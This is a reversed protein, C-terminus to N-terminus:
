WWSSGYGYGIGPWYQYGFPGHYGFVYDRRVPRQVNFYRHVNFYRNVVHHRVYALPRVDAPDVVTSCNIGVAKPPLALPAAAAEVAPIFAASLALSILKVTSNQM